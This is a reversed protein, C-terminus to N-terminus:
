HGFRLMVSINFIYGDVRAFPPGSGPLATSNAKLVGWWLHYLIAICCM